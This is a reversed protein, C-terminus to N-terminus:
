LEIFSEAPIMKSADQSTYLVNLRGSTYDVGEPTKLKIRAKRLTGPTYVAFGKISGVKTRVGNSSLHEVLIDGYSSASGKRHFSLSLIPVEYELQEFVLESIEVEVKPKDILIINAVSVGYVPKLNISLGETSATKEKEKLEESKIVPRFYLHSRYEGPQLESTKTLQIKVLQTENPALTITRPYFRLYPSAFNQGAEPEEIIQFNGDVDMRNQIYSLKYTATDIGKNNLHIIHMRDQTGEFVLRTPYVLLDGQSLIPGSSLLLFYFLYFKYHILVIKISLFNFM